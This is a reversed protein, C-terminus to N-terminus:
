SSGYLDCLAYPLGSRCGASATSPCLSCPSACVASSHPLSPGFSPQPPAKGRAPKAHSVPHTVSVGLERLVLDQEKNRAALAPRGVQLQARLSNEPCVRICILAM